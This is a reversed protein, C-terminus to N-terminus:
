SAEREELRHPQGAVATATPAPARLALRHRRERERDAEALTKTLADPPDAVRVAFLPIRVEHVRRAGAAARVAVDQMVSSVDFGAARFGTIKATVTALASAAALAAAYRERLDAEHREAEVVLAAQREREAEEDAKRKATDRKATAIKVASALAEAEERGADALVRAAALAKTGRAPDVEGSALAARAAELKAGLDEARKAAAAAAEELRHAKTDADAFFDKLSAVINNM